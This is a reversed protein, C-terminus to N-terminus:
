REPPLPHGIHRGAPVGPVASVARSRRRFKRRATDESTRANSDSPHVCQYEGDAFGVGPANDRHVDIAPLRFLVHSFAGGPYNGTRGGAGYRDEVLKIITLLMKPEGNWLFVNDFASTFEERSQELEQHHFAMMVVPIGPCLKRAKRSFEAPEIDTLTRLVIILDYKSEELAKLASTGSDVRRTAPASSLRFEAYEAMLLSTLKGDEHLNYIDYLSSVLLINQIKFSMLSDFRTSENEFTELEAIPNM